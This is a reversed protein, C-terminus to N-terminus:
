FQLYFQYEVQDMSEEVRNEVLSALLLSGKLQHVLIGYSIFNAPFWHM